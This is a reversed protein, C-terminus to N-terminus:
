AARDLWPYRREIIRGIRWDLFFLIICATMVYPIIENMALNRQLLVIRYGLGSSAAISEGLILLIVITKFNFKIEKLVRPFIQPLVIRYIIEFDTAGQTYAAVVEERPINRAFLHTALLLNSFVGLEILAIKAVEGTGFVVFIIPLLIAAPIINFLIWFRYGFAEIYSSTGMHLGIGVAFVLFIIAIMFRKGSAFTDTILTGGFHLTGDSSLEAFQISPIHISRAQVSFTKLPYRLKKGFVNENEESLKRFEQDEAVKQGYFSGGYPLPIELAYRRRHDPEVLVTKFGLVTQSATPVLNDQSNISHRVESVVVYSGFFLIFPIISLIKAKGTRPKATLSFMRLKM